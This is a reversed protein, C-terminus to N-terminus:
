PNAGVSSLYANLAPLEAQIHPIAVMSKTDRKPKYGAPYEARLVRAEMLEPSSGAISPGIPGDKKPDSGHCSACNSIYIAKGRVVLQEPTMESINASKKTCATLAFAFALALFAFLLM